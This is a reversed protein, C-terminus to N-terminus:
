LLVETRLVQIHLILLLTYCRLVFDIKLDCVRNLVFHRTDFDLLISYM